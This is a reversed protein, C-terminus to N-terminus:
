LQKFENTTQEHKTSPNLPKVDDSKYHLLGMMLTFIMYALVIIVASKVLAVITRLTIVKESNKLKELDSDGKIEKGDIFIRTKDGSKKIQVNNRMTKIKRDLTKMSKDLGDMGKDLTAMGRDIAKDMNNFIEDFDKM